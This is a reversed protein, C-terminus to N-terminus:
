CTALLVPGAALESLAYAGEVPEIELTLLRGDARVEGLAFRDAFTGGQGPAPGAALVARSDADTRAHEESEFAMAVRGDSGGVGVGVGIGIADYAHVEGASAVLDAAEGRATDDAQTMALAACAYSGAYIAAADVDGLAEVVVDIGGATGDPSDEAGTDTDQRQMSPLDALTAAQDSAALVRADADISLYALEPTVSGIEPLLDPGGAWVGDPEDPEPYGLEVLQARLDDLSLEDPLGMLVVAGADSQSFLEWDLTAPSVGYEEAMVPASSVLASMPSLDADFAEGLLEEVATADPSAAVDSDLRERVAAWDTWGHRVADDPALEMAAALRTDPGGTRQLVVVTAVAALVVVATVAALLAFRRRTPRPM